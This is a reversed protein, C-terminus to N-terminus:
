FPLDEIEDDSLYSEPKSSEECYDDEICYNNSETENLYLEDEILDNSDQESSMLWYDGNIFHDLDTANKEYFEEAPIGDIVYVRQIKM